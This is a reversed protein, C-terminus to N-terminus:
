VGDFDLYSLYWHERLAVLDEVSPDVARVGFVLEGSSPRAGAALFAHRAYIPYSGSHTLSWARAVTAGADSMERLALGLLHSAARMGDVSRDHLLEMVYGVRDGEEQRVAFVCMARIAYRDGDEFVFVRYGEGERRDFVRWGLFRADRETAVRIDISFRGWLRTIRPDLVRIERVGARRRRGFPALLSANPALSAARAALGPRSALYSLRLPRVLAPAPGLSEWGSGEAFVEPPPGAAFGYVLAAGEATDAAAGGLSPRALAARRREGALLMWRHTETM